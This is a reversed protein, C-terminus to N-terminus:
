VLSAFPAHTCNFCALLECSFFWSVLWYFFSAFSPLQQLAVQTHAKCITKQPHLCEQNCKLHNYFALDFDRPLKSCALVGADFVSVSRYDVEVTESPTPSARSPAPSPQQSPAKISPVAATLPVPQAVAAVFSPGASVPPSPRKMPPPQLM